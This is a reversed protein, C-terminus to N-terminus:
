VLLQGDLILRGTIREIVHAFECVVHLGKKSQFSILMPRGPSSFYLLATGYMKLTWRWTFTLVRFLLILGYYCCAQARIKVLSLLFQIIQWPSDAINLVM